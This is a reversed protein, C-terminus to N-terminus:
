ILAFFGASIYQNYIGAYSFLTVLGAVLTQNAAFNLIKIDAAM